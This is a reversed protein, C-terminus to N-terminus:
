FLKNKVSDDYTFLYYANRCGIHRTFEDSVSMEIKSHAEAIMQRMDAVYRQLQLTHLIVNAGGSVV